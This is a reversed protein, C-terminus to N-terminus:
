KKIIRVIKELQDSKISILYVGPNFRSIDLITKDLEEMEEVLVVQGMTNVVKISVNTNESEMSITLFRDAPNPYIEVGLQMGNMDIGTFDVTYCDSTNACTGQTVIVAYEGSEAPTFSGNTEGVIISNDACNIWQYSGSTEITLTREVQSVVITEVAEYSVTFQCQDSNGSADAFTYTVTTVGPSFTEIGADGSGSGTTAGTLEYTVVPTSCDDFLDTLGISAAKGDCTVVDSPCTATPATVDEVVVNQTVDISNGNGDDFTWTILYTGNESYTTPDSTSGTVTGVCADTTTPAIVEVSCEGTADTLVPADPPTVDTVVVNQAVDISNGNGDDFTWTIVHTGATSYTLPDSTTGTISGACADTTTPAVGTASCEGTVDSLIPTEPPTVDTIVVNQTVDISNGNGDDFNWSIVHTGQTSYTLPDSTTGTITGECADNTTPAVATASCEGTVDTLVPTDPDTVDDNVMSQVQTSTNGSGDTYTWTIVTTGQTAIPFPTATTGTVTGSHLDTATPALPTVYCEGTVDPLIALDPVPPTLDTIVLTGTANGSYNAEEVDASVAYSGLETPISVSGDYTVKITLGAPVTTVTAEIKSGTYEQTLDTLTVTAPAKKVLQHREFTVSSYTADGAQSAYILSEGANNVSVTSGSVSVVTSNSSSFTIPLGSSSTASLAYDVDGFTKYVLAEFNIVQALKGALQFSFSELVGTSEATVTGKTYAVGIAHDTNLNPSVYVVITAPDGPKLACSTSTVDVGDDQISFELHKGTPDTMVRDFTIEVRDVEKSAYLFNPIGPPSVNITYTEDPSTWTDDSFRFDFDGVGNGTGGSASYILKFSGDSVDTPVSTIQPGPIGGNNQYLDGEVPLSTVTATKSGADGGTFVLTIIREEGQELYATQPVAVLPPVSSTQFSWIESWSIADVSNKSYASWYYTQDASLPFEYSLDTLDASTHIPSSLDSNQSIVVFYNSANAAAEWQFTVNDGITSNNAPSILSPTSARPITGQLLVGEYVANDDYTYTGAGPTFLIAKESQIYDETNYSCLVGATGNENELGITASNGSARASTLDVISRYQTQINNSGEYLIVQFTGLLVPSNWFSMNTFQIVLKRNPATGITQYMIDGSEHIVIDDWFPAIYNNPTGTNPITRNIYRTSGSGFMVLGNSTVFFDTYANGFFDFSFGIPFAGWARDDFYGEAAIIGSYETEDPLAWTLSMLSVMTVTLFLRARFKLTEM